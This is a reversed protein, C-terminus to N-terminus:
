QELVEENEADLCQLARHRGDAVLKAVFVSRSDGLKAHVLASVPASTRIVDGPRLTLTDGISAAGLDLVVDLEVQALLISGRLSALVPGGDRVTPAWADCLAADVFVDMTIDAMSWRLHVVGCHPATVDRGPAIDLKTIQDCETGGGISRILDSLARRGIAEALGADSGEAVGALIRGLREPDLSRADIRLTGVTTELAYWPGSREDSAETAPVVTVLIEPGDQELWGTRWQGSRSAVVTRLQETRSRGQWRFPLVTM